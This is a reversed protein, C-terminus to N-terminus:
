KKSSLYVGVLVISAGILQVSSITEHDLLGWCFAVVPILYTVSSAFIPSSIQILRFFLINAIGTGIVGLVAIYITATQVEPLYIVHMFGSSILIIISPLSLILFSATVISLSNLESLYKKILNINSAYCLTAVVIFIAYYYNQTPNNAAGQLILLACGIFGIIVGVLQKKQFEVSFFLAGIILTNLPTLSNLISAISSSIQTQAFSFLYVPIFTGVFATLLIYKWHRNQINKISKFGIILLFIASFIVRLSGLQIATLGVLGRKMLIFSSGWVLALPILLFWKSQKIYM